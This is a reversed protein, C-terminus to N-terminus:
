YKWCELCIPVSVRWNDTEGSEKGVSRKKATDVSKQADELRTKCADLDAEVKRRASAAAGVQSDKEGIVKKLEVIENKLNEDVVNAEGIKQQLARTQLTVVALADRSEALQRELNASLARGTSEADRLQTIIESTKTNQQKAMRLEGERAEKTKMAAFYKQDAKGKEAIARASQEEWSAIEAVKKAAISQSKKWAIEMSVLEKSLMSETRQMTGVKAKLDDITMSELTSDHLEPPSARLRAIESELAEMRSQRSLDLEKATDASLREGDRALKKVALDAANDDRQGRVRSLDAEMRALLSEHEATATRAEEELQNRFATRESHLKQAEERLQINTAELDNLRKIADEHQSKFQTYLATKAYDDDSVVLTALQSATLQDSLKKNEAELQDIQLRRREAIADSERKAADNAAMAATDVPGDSPTPSATKSADKAAPKVDERKITAQQEMKSVIASKARDLKKEAVLYRYSANELRANLQDRDSTIRQLEILHSKESALLTSLKEQLETVEASAQPARM